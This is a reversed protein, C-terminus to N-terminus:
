QAGGVTAAVEDEGAKAVRDFFSRVLDYKTPAYLPESVTLKSDIVAVPGTVVCERTFAAGAIEFSLNEPLTIGAASDDFHIEVVNRYVFPYTFDVPFHRKLSKFPNERFAYRVPKVMVNNDLTRKLDDSTYNVHVRFQNLSDLTCAYTGLSYMRGLREAFNDKIFDLPTDSNDYREGYESAYYGTFVCDTSCAVAGQSSVYMRTLDARQSIAPKVTIAVMESNAGDILLGVNTLCNPPLLGYPAHRNSADLFEWENGFQVFAAMYNFQSLDPSEVTIKGRDRTSILVPFAPIELARHLKVLLTNKEDSSGIKEALMESLRAHGYWAYPDSTSTRYTATVYDYIAHSQERPTTANATIERALSTIEKPNDTYEDIYKQANDGLESWTKVFSHSAYPTEYKLLRFRLASFYDGVCSMYPEDNVPPLDNMTWTFVKIMSVEAFSKDPNPKQSDQSKQFRLPMNQYAVEYTFGPFLEVTFRSERTWLDNQFYWPSLRSWRETKLEYEYEVICGATLSAFAFTREKWDGVGKEFVADRKVEYKKGDPTLTQAKFDKIKDFEKSYSIAREGVESIGAETLIKIRVHRTIRVIEPTVELRGHDFLIIANAEPYGSPAQMQWEEDTVKGYKQGFVDSVGVSLLVLCVWTLHFIIRRLNM